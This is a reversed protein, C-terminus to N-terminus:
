KLLNMKKTASFEGAHIQYIYTGTAVTIGQDNKGDWVVNYKAAEQRANVLTRVPQGLINYIVIKVDSAKAIDYQINTTPNFPNPYNQGLAFASPIEAVVPTEVIGMPKILLLREDSMTEFLGDSAVVYWKVPCAKEMEGYGLSIALNYLTTGTAWLIEDTNISDPFVYSSNEKIKVSYTVVDADEVKMGTVSSILPANNPDTSPMWTFDLRQSHSNLPTEWGAGPRDLTPKSPVHNVIQFENSQSSIISQDVAPYAQFWQDNSIRTPTFIYNTRGRIPRIAGFGANLFDEPYRASLYILIDSASSDIANNYKDAPSVIVEMKRHVFVTSAGQRPMVEVSLREIAGVVTVFDRTNAGTIMISNEGITKFVPNNDPVNIHVTGAKTNNYTIVAQGEVFLDSPLIFGDTINGALLKDGVKLTLKQAGTYKAADIGLAFLKLNKVDGENFARITNGDEDEATLTFVHDSGVPIKAAAQGAKNANDVVIKAFDGSKVFTITFANSQTTYGTADWGKGVRDKAIVYVKYTAGDINKLINMLFEKSIVAGPGPGVSTTPLTVISDANGDEPFKQQVEFVVQYNITDLNFAKGYSNMSLGDKVGNSDIPANWTLTFPAASVHKQGSSLGNAILTFAEPKKNLEFDVDLKHTAVTTVGWKNKAEVEVRLNRNYHGYGLGLKGALEEPAVTMMQTQLRTAPDYPINVYTIETSGEYFRVNYEIGDDATNTSPSPSWSLNYTGDDLRVLSHSTLDNVDFVGPKLLKKVYIQRFSTIMTGAGRNILDPKNGIGRNFNIDSYHIRIQHDLGGGDPIFPLIADTARSHFLNKVDKINSYKGTTDQDLLFEAGGGIWSDDWYGGNASHTLSVYISDITNRNGYRDYNRVEINYIQGVFITDVPVAYSRPNKAEQWNQNDVDGATRSFNITGIYNRRIPYPYIAENNENVADPNSMAVWHVGGPLVNLGITPEGVVTELTASNYSLSDIITFAIKGSKRSVVKIRGIGGWFGNNYASHGSAVNYNGGLYGTPNSTTAPNSYEIAEFDGFTRPTKQTLYTIDNGSNSGWGIISTAPAVVTNSGVQAIQAYGDLRTGEPMVTIAPFTTDPRVIDPYLDILPAGTAQDAAILVKPHAYYRYDYWLLPAEEPYAGEVYDYAGWDIINGVDVRGTTIDKPDTEIQYSALPGTSKSAIWAIDRVTMLDNTKVVAQISQDDDQNVLLLGGNTATNGTGTAGQHSLTQYEFKLAGRLKGASIISKAGSSIDHNRGATLRSGVTANTVMTGNTIASNDGVFFQNYITEGDLVSIRNTNVIHATNNLKTVIISDVHNPRIPNGYMDYLRVYVQVIRGAYSRGGKWSNEGQIFSIDNGYTGSNPMVTNEEAIVRRDTTITPLTAQREIMAAQRGYLNLYNLGNLQYVKGEDDAKEFYDGTGDVFAVQNIKDAYVRYRAVGYRNTGITNDRTLQLAKPPSGGPKYFYATAELENYGRLNNRLVDNTSINDYSISTKITENTKVEEGAANLGLPQNWLGNTGNWAYMSILSDRGTNYTGTPFVNNREIPFVHRGAVDNTGGVTDSNIGIYARGNHATNNIGLNLQRTGRYAKIEAVDAYGDKFPPATAHSLDYALDPDFLFASWRSTGLLRWYVNTYDDYESSVLENNCDRLVGYAYTTKTKDEVDGRSAILATDAFSSRTYLRFKDPETSITAVITEDEFGGSRARVKIRVTDESTNAPVYSIYICGDGNKLYTTGNYSGTTDHRANIVSTIGTSNGYGKAEDFTLGWYNRGSLTDYATTVGTIPIKRQWSAISSWGGKVYAPTQFVVDTPDTFKLLHGCDDIAEVKFEVEETGCSLSRAAVIATDAVPWGGGASRIFGNQSNAMRLSAITTSGSITIKYTDDLNGGLQKLVGNKGGTISSAPESLDAISDKYATFSFYIADNRCTTNFAGTVVGRDDSGDIARAFLFMTDTTPVEYDNGVGHLRLGATANNSTMVTLAVTDLYTDTGYVNIAVVGESVVNNCRDTLTAKIQNGPLRAESSTLTGPFPQWSGGAKRWEVMMSSIPGATIFIAQDPRYGEAETSAFAPNSSADRTQLFASNLTDAQGKATQGPIFAVLRIKRVRDIKQDDAVDYGWNFIRRGPQYSTDYKRVGYVNWCGSMAVPTGTGSTGVNNYATADGALLVPSKLSDLVLNSDADFIFLTDEKRTWEGLAGDYFRTVTDIVTHPKFNADGSNVLNAVVTGDAVYRGSANPRRLTPILKGETTIRGATFTVTNPAGKVGGAYGGFGVNWRVFNADGPLLTLYLIPAGAVVQNAGGGMNNAYAYTRTPLSIDVTPNYTFYQNARRVSVPQRGSAIITEIQYQIGASDRGASNFYLDSINSGIVYQGATIPVPTYSYPSSGSRITLYWVSDYNTSVTPVSTGIQYGVRDRYWVATSDGTYYYLHTENISTVEVRGLANIPAPTFPPADTLSIYTFWTSDGSVYNGDEYDTHLVTYDTSVGSYVYFNVSDAPNTGYNTPFPHRADENSYRGSAQVYEIPSLPVFTSTSDLKWGPVASTHSNAPATRINGNNLAPLGPAGLTSGTFSENRGYSVLLTDQVAISGRLWKGTPALYLDTL